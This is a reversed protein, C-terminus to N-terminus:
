PETEQVPESSPERSRLHVGTVFKVVGSMLLSFLGRSQKPKRSRKKLRHLEANLESCEHEHRMSSQHMARESELRQIENQQVMAKQLRAMEIRHHLDRKALKDELELRELHLIENECRFAETGGSNNSRDEDSLLRRYVQDHLHQLNVNLQSKASLAAQRQREMKTEEAALLGAVEHDKDQEAQRREEQLSAIEKEYQKRLQDNGQDIFHGAATERLTRNLDLLERVIELRPPSDKRELLSVIVAMASRSNRHLRMTIAGDRILPAWFKDSRRLQDELRQSRELEPGMLDVENWRTTVLRVMPMAPGGTLLTFIQLTKLASGSMRPHTIRHLYILGSVRGGREYLKTLCAPIEMLIEAAPRGTDNFGPTDVLWGGRGDPCKLKHVTVHKTKSQLDHGIEVSEESLLSIFTSKGAGTVGMVVFLPGSPDFAEDDSMTETKNDDDSTEMTPQMQEIMKSTSM